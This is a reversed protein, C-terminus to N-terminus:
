CVRLLSAIYWPVARRGQEHVYICIYIIKCVSNASTINVFSFFIRNAKEKMFYLDSGHYM